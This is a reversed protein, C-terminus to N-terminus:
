RLYVVEIKAQNGSISSDILNLGRSRHIPKTSRAAQGESPVDETEAQRRATRIGNECARLRVVTPVKAPAAESSCKKLPVLERRELHFRNTGSVFFVNRIEFAGQPVGGGTRATANM